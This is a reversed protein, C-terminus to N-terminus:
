VVICGRRRRPKEHTAQQRSTALLRRVTAPHVWVLRAGAAPTKQRTTVVDRCLPIAMAHSYAVPNHVIRPLTRRPREATIKGHPVREPARFSPSPHLDRQMIGRKRVKSRRERLSFFHNVTM